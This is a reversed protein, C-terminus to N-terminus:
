AAALPAPATGSHQREYLTQLLPVARIVEGDLWDWDIHDPKAYRPPITLVRTPTVITDAITSFPQPACPWDVVQCDHVVAVIPTDPAIVQLAVLILWELDFYSPETSLRVGDTNIVSAGTVLLGPRAAPAVAAVAWPQGFQELGDLTGAYAAQGAPVSDAAIRWFGRSLAYTPVIVTKGDALSRARLNALANDPTLCVTPAQRYEPLAQVAAACLDSGAFDPIFANFDWHFRSDPRAVRRLDNWVRRRIAEREDARTTVM